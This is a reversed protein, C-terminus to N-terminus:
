ITPKLVRWRTPGARKEGPRSEGPRRDGARTVFDDSNPIPMAKLGRCM